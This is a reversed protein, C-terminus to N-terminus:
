CWCGPVALVVPIAAELVLLWASHIVLCQSHIVQRYSNRILFIFTDIFEWYKQYYFMKNAWVLWASAEDNELLLDQNGVFKVSKGMM